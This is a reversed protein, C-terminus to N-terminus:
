PRRAWTFSFSLSGTKTADKPYAPSFSIKYPAAGGDFYDGIIMPVAVAVGGALNGDAELLPYSNIKTYSNNIYSAVTYFRGTEAVAGGPAIMIANLAGNYVKLGARGGISAANMWSGIVMRAALADDQGLLRATFDYSIGSIVQTGTVDTENYYVRLEYELTLYDIATVVLSTPNGIADLILERSWLASSSRGVGIETWTGQAAGKPTQVTWRSWSYRPSSTVNGHYPPGYLANYPLAISYITGSLATDTEQPDTTGTGLCIVSTWMSGNTGIGNLGLNTILNKFERRAKVRGEEDTVTLTFRGELGVKAPIFLSNNRRAFIQKM